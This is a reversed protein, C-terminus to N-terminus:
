LNDNCLYINLDVEEPVTMFAIIAIMFSIPPCRSQNLHLDQVAMFKSHYLIRARATRGAANKAM